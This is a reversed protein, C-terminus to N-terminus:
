VGNAPAAGGVSAMYIAKAMSLGLFCGLQRAEEMKDAAEGAEAAKKAVIEQVAEISAVIPDKVSEGEGGCGGARGTASPTPPGSGGLCVAM